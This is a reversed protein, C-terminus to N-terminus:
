GVVHKGLGIKAITEAKWAELQALAAEPNQLIKGEVLEARNRQEMVWPITSAALREKLEGLSELASAYDGSEVLTYAYAELVHSNVRPRGLDINKRLYNLVEILTSVSDLFPIAENQIAVTLDTLLNPNNARWNSDRGIRKGFTDHVSDNPVFLPLFFVSLYFNDADVSSEFYLGRLLGEVPVQFVMKKEMVFGPLQTSIQKWFKAFDKTKM